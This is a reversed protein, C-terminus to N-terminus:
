WRNGCGPRGYPSYGRHGSPFGGSYISGGGYFGGGYVPRSITQHVNFQQFGNYGYHHGQHVRVPAVTQFNHGHGYHGGYLRNDKANGIARGTAGGILGGIAAGAIPRDRDAGVLGGIIAGAIAGNRTGRQTFNQAQAEPVLMFTAAVALIGYKIMNM